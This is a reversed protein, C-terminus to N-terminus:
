RLCRNIERFVFLLSRAPPCNINIVSMEYQTLNITMLFWKCQRLNIEQLINDIASSSIVFTLECLQRSIPVLSTFLKM